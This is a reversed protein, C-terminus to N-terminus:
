RITVDSIEANTMHAADTPTAALQDGSLLGRRLLDQRLIHRAQDAPNRLESIAVKLLASYEDQDLVLKIRNVVTNGGSFL